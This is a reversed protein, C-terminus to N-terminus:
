VQRSGETLDLFVNVIRDRPATVQDNGRCVLQEGTICGILGRWNAAADAPTSLLWLAPAAAGFSLRAHRKADPVAGSCEAPWALNAM